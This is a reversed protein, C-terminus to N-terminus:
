PLLTARSGSVKSAPLAGAKATGSLQGQDVTVSFKLTLKMPRTVKQTWTIDPGNVYLETLETTDSGQRAVGRLGSEPHELATFEYQVNQTGMPTSISVDWLGILDSGNPTTPASVNGTATGSV